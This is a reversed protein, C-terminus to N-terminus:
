RRQKSKILNVAKSPDGAPTATQKEAITYDVASSSDWNDTM